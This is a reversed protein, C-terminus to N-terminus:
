RIMERVSALSMGKEEAITALDDFEAKCREVGMGKAAKIRVQGLPTELVGNERNLVYRSMDLRRIGLTTTHKMMLAALRDSDAPLCLISLLIGPRNKKM